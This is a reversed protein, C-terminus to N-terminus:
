KLKEMIKVAAFLGGIMSAGTVLLAFGTSGHIVPDPPEYSPDTMVTDPCCTKKTSGGCAFPYDGMEGTGEGEKPFWPEPNGSSLQKLAATRAEDDIAHFWRAFCAFDQWKQQCNGGSDQWVGPAAQGETMAWIVDDIRKALDPHLDLEDPDDRWMRDFKDVAGDGKWLRIDERILIRKVEKFYAPDDHLPIMCAM